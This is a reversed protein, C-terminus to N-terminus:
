VLRLKELAWSGSSLEGFIEGNMYGDVYCEGVLRYAGEGLGLDVFRLTLPINCGLLICVFDGKGRYIPGMQAVQASREAEDGQNICISNIWWWTTESPFEDQRRDSMM